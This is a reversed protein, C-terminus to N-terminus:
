TRVEVLCEDCERAIELAREFEMRNLSQHDGCAAFQETM